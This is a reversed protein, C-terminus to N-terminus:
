LDAADHEAFSPEFPWIGAHDLELQYPSCSMFSGGRISVRMRLACIRPLDVVSVGADFSRM